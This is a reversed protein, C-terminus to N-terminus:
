ALRLSTSAEIRQQYSEAMPQVPNEPLVIVLVVFFDLLPLPRVLM